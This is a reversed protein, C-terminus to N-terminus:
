HQSLKLHDKALSLVQTEECNLGIKELSASLTKRFRHNNLVMVSPIRGQILSREVSLSM